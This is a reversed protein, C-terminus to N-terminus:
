HPQVSGPRSPSVRTCVCAYMCVGLARTLTAARNIAQQALHGCVCVYSPPTYGKGVLALTLLLHPRLGATREAPWATHSRITLPGHTIRQPPYELGLVAQEACNLIRSSVRGANGQIMSFFVLFLCDLKYLSTFLWLGRDVHAGHFMDLLKGRLCDRRALEGIMGRRLSVRAGASVLRRAQREHGRWPAARLLVQTHTHTHLRAHTPTCM